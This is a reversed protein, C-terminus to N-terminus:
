IFDGCYYLCSVRLFEASNIKMFVYNEKCKYRCHIVWVRQSMGSDCSYKNENNDIEVTWDKYTSLTDEALDFM